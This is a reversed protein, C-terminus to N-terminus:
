TLFNEVDNKVLVDVCVCVCCLYSSSKDVDYTTNSERASEIM